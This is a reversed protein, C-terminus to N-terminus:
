GQYTVGGERVSHALWKLFKIKYSVEGNGLIFCQFFIVANFHQLKYLVNYWLFESLVSSASGYILVKKNVLEWFNWFSPFSLFFFYIYIDWLLPNEPFNAKDSCACFCGVRARLFCLHHVLGCDKKEARGAITSHFRHRAEFSQCGWVSFFWGIGEHNRDWMGIECRSTWRNGDM